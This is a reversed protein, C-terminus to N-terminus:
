TILEIISLMNDRGAKVLGKLDGSESSSLPKNEKRRENLYNRWHQLEPKYLQAESSYINSRRQYFSALQSLYGIFDDLDECGSIIM